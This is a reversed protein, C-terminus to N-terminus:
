GHGMERVRAALWSLDTDELGIEALHSATNFLYEPNPGRGGVAAAIVQAQKELPLGGCYQEHAVDVVYTVAPVRRGDHLDIDHIEEVYASSVLERERLDVLTKAADDPGVFFAVGDCYGGASPDLALVLGPRAVTGRHHISWMCFSRSCGNLRAIQREQFPFGPNWVLSGYAFVWFGESLM